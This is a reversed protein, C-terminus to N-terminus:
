GWQQAMALAIGKYTEARKKWRDASPTLRNQGSDTQNDWRNKGEVLRGSVFGTDQLLPLGKLWLGTKKSADHGFNYPQIYQDAKKIKTGICGVPNEICIKPINVAMLERVFDLAQDTKEQRGVRRKNWHLGSSCLYTCPPHVIFMDWYRDTVADMVDKQIHKGDGQLLDCSWANHGRKCFADRVVGSFECGILVNM